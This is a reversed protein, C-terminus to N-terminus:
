LFLLHMLTQFLKVYIYKEKGKSSFWCSTKLKNKFLSSFLYFVQVIMVWLCFVQTCVIGKACVLVRLNNSLTIFKNSLLTYSSFLKLSHVNHSTAGLDVVIWTSQLYFDNYHPSIFVMCANMNNNILPAQKERQYQIYAIM